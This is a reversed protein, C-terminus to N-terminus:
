PNGEEYEAQQVLVEVVTHIRRRERQPLRGIQEALLSEKVTYGSEVVETLVMDASIHLANLLAVLTELSPIKEGREVMGIYNGSVGAARALDEQRLGSERRYIRLNRGISSWDM